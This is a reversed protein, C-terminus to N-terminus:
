DFSCADQERVSRRREKGLLKFPLASFSWARVCIAGSILCYLFNSLFGWIQPIREGIAYFYIRLGSGYFLMVVFLFYITKETKTIQKRSAWISLLVFVGCSLAVYVGITLYVPIDARSTVVAKAVEAAHAVTTVFQKKFFEAGLQGSIIGLMAYVIKMLSKNIHGMESKVEVLM